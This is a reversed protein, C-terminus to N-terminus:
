ILNLLKGIELLCKQEFNMDEKKVERRLEKVDYDQLLSSIKRLIEESRGELADAIRELHRESRITANMTDMEIRTHTM